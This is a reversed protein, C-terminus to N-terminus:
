SKFSQELGPPAALPQTEPVLARTGNLRATWKLRPFFLNRGEASSNTFFQKRGDERKVRRWTETGSEKRNGAAPPFAEWEGESIFSWRGWLLVFCKGGSLPRQSGTLSVRTQQGGATRGPGGGGGAGGRAKRKGKTHFPLSISINEQTIVVM